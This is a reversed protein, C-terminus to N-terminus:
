QNDDLLKEISIQFTKCLELPTGYLRVEKVHPLIVRHKRNILTQLLPAVYFEGNVQQRHKLQWQATSEFLKMNNFGYLGISALSSIRKKEAVEVAFMPHSPDPRGFSWHDGEAEFVPMSAEYAGPLCYNNWSFGTDCNHILLPQELLMQKSDQAMLYQVSLLATALQGPPLDKLELWHLNVGPWHKKLKTNLLEPLKDKAQTTILLTDGDILDFSSLSHEILTRNDICILPKPVKIGCNKFRSGAGAATILLTLPERM